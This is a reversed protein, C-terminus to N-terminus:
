LCRMRSWCRGGCVVHLPLCCYGHFFLEGQNGRLPDAAADFLAGEAAVSFNRSLPLPEDLTEADAAIKKCRDTGAEGSVGPEFWKLTDQWPCPRAGSGAARRDPRPALLSDDRVEDCDNLDEYGM